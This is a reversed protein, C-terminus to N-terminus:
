QTLSSSSGAIDSQRVLGSPAQILRDDYKRSSSKISAHAQLNHSLHPKVPQLLPQIVAVAIIM